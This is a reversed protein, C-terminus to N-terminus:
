ESRLVNTLRRIHPSVMQNETTMNIRVRYTNSATDLKGRYEYGSYQEDVAHVTPDSLTVWNTGDTSYQVEPQATSEFAVVVANFNGNMVVKKSIYSGTLGTKFAILDVSTGDIVASTLATSKITAKLQFSTAVGSLTQDVGDVFPIWDGDNSTRYEWDIGENKFNDTNTLLVFQNMTSVSVSNFMLTGAAGNFRARYLKFKMDQTGHVTWAVNNPSDFLDGATYPQSSVNAQTRIDKENVVATWLKYSASDTLITICYPTNAICHIPRTFTM